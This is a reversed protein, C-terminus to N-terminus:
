VANALQPAYNALYYKHWIYMFFLQLQLQSYLPETDKAFLLRVSEKPLGIREFIDSHLYQQYEYLLEDSEHILKQWPVSFGVKQHSLIYDPLRKGITQTLLHKGKRGKLLYNTPLTGVGEMLRYDLFPDRCEISAGMTARDNRDNLSQLYTHQDYYLLQRSSDRPYLEAAERVIESRYSNNISLYPLNLKRFDTEFYNSGNSMILESISGSSLYRELKQVRSNKWRDPTIKLLTQIGNRYRLLRFVKYRVYGGLCEDSGEGSLLVKVQNGAIKALSLIQPDNLHVLPEDYFQTAQIVSQFLNSKEVTIGHFPFQLEEAYQRAIVSEDYRYNNFGVNFTQIHKYQQHKLSAAISGSDLGGSLMVGVPVDAIMRMQVADDFTNEFWSFPQQITPHKQIQESLNWWRTQKVSGDPKIVAYHGPLLKQINKLLTQSGSVYRYILWENLNSENLNAQIGAAFIAKPESAFCFQQADQYYYFPKVGVRDRCVFLEQKATDWIAFAFMGNLRHLMDSGYEM